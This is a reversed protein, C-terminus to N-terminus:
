IARLSSRSPETRKYWLTHLLPATQLTDYATQHGARYLQCPWWSYMGTNSRDLNDFFNCERFKARMCRVRPTYNQEQRSGISGSVWVLYTWFYTHVRFEACTQILPKKRLKIEKIFGSNKFSQLKAIFPKMRFGSIIIPCRRGPHVPTQTLHRRMETLRTRTDPYM